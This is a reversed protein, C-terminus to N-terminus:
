INLVYFTQKKAKSGVNFFNFGKPISKDWGNKRAQTISKFIGVQHLLHAMIWKDSDFEIFVDEDITEEDLPGFFLEKHIETVDKTIFHFCKNKM